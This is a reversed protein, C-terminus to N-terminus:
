MNELLETFKKLNMRHSLHTYAVVPCCHCRCCSDSFRSKIVHHQVVTLESTTKLILCICIKYLMKIREIHVKM